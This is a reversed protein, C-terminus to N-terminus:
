LRFELALITGSEFSQAKRAREARALFEAMNKDQVASYAWGEATANWRHDRVTM